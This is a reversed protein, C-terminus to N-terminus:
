CAVNAAGIDGSVGCHLGSIDEFNFADTRPAWLNTHYNVLERQLNSQPESQCCRCYTQYMSHSSHNISGGYVAIVDLVYVQCLDMVKRAGDSHFTGFWAVAKDNVDKVTLLM